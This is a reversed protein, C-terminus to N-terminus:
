LGALEEAVGKAMTEIYDDTESYRRRTGAWDRPGLPNFVHAPGGGTDTDKVSTM